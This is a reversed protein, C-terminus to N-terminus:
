KKKRNHTNRITKKKGTPREKAINRGNQNSSNGTNKRGANKGGMNRDDQGRRNKDTGQYNQRNKDPRPRILCKADFGILDSRHAKLLAEKVLEYNAPNRYQILARQMAKEHPNKPVYVPEMTRPDVGTYYMCTSITSPTPYFDQVQEPMYGLDRLYEALEVAETLSCGPHSSMLYPVLYQEKGIKENMKYFQRTFEEYVKHEPKGMLSLVPGAVHEPAVKLQGSVHYECLERLFEQKKDALLYDFRIGSRIFVKKVKPIDRLKRLLSVYDRHDADLNKCPSPFLCQRTKCVGHEMQKKCSPHRFNATPGGVDHIYGKFDKDKTIEKAEEILSEHSRVQVIRGQHFTLACFSCGGFCGRNSILSFKIERIAPVGGATEYSPHYTRMYPLAYVDDMEQQTLPKAPPNQVVYLHDSYPEVLRKGSFPDTNCYQKYFSQAFSRKNEKIEDYDPLEVADYILDRNKSM